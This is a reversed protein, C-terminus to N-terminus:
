QKKVANLRIAERVLEAVVNADVADGEHFEIARVGSSHLRANFLDQKSTMYAGKPFVLKMDNKFTEVYCVNGGQMWVPLGEPRSAMRWKIAEVIDPAAKRVAARIDKLLAGKWGGYQTVIDDIQESATKEM